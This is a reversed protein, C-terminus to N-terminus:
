VTPLKDLYIVGYRALLNQDTEAIDTWPRTKEDPKQNIHVIGAFFAQKLERRRTGIKGPLVFEHQEENKIVRMNVKTDPEDYKEPTIEIVDIIPNNISNLEFESEINKAITSVVYPYRCEHIRSHAEGDVFYRVRIRANYLIDDDQLHPYFRRFAGLVNTRNSQAHATVTNIAKHINELMAKTNRMEDEVEQTTPKRDFRERLSNEVIKQLHLAEPHRLIEQLQEINKVADLDPQELGDLYRSLKETDYYM